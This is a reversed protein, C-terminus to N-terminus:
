MYNLLDCIMCYLNEFKFEAVSILLSKDINLRLFFREHKHLVKRKSIKTFICEKVYDNKYYVNLHIIDLNERCPM